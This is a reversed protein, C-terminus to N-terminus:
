RKEDHRTLCYAPFTSHDRSKIEEEVDNLSPRTRLARGPGKLAISRNSNVARRFSSRASPPVTKIPDSVLTASTGSLAPSYVLLQSCILTLARRSPHRVFSVFSPLSPRTRNALAYAAICGRAILRSTLLFSGDVRIMSRPFSVTRNQM